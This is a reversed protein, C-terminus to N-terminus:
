NDYSNKYSLNNKEILEKLYTNESFQRYLNLYYFKNEWKFNDYIVFKENINKNSLIMRSEASNIPAWIQLLIEKNNFYTFINNKYNKM